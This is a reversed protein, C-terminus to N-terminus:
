VVVPRRRSCVRRRGRETRALQVPAIACIRAHARVRDMNQAMVARVMCVCDCVSIGEDRAATIVALRRTWLAPLPKAVEVGALARLLITMCMLTRRRPTSSIYEQSPAKAYETRHFLYHCEEMVDVINEVPGREPDGRGILENEYIYMWCLRSDDRLSLGRAALARELICKRLEMQHLIGWFDHENIHLVFEMAWNLRLSKRVRAYTVLNIKETVLSQTLLAQVLQLHTIGAQSHGTLKLQFM